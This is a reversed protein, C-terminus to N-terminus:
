APCCVSTELAQGHRQVHSAASGRASLFRQRVPRVVADGLFSVKGVFGEPLHAEVAGIAALTAKDPTRSEVSWETSAIEVSGLLKKFSMGVAVFFFM